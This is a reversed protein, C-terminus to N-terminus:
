ASAPLLEFFSTIIGFQRSCGWCESEQLGRREVRGVMRRGEGLLIILFRLFSILFLLSHIPTSSFLHLLHKLLLWAPAATQQHHASGALQQTFGSIPVSGMIPELGGFPLKPTLAAPWFYVGINHSSCGECSPCVHATIINIPTVMIGVEEEEGAAWGGCIEDWYEFVKVKECSIDDEVEHVQSVWAICHLKYFKHFKNSCLISLTGM